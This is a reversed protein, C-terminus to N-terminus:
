LENGISTTGCSRTDKVAASFVPMLNNLGVQVTDEVTGLSNTVVELLTSSSRKDNCRGHRTVNGIERLLLSGVVDGLSSTDVHCSPTYRPQQFQGLHM